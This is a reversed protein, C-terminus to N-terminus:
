WLFTIRFNIWKIDKQPKQCKMRNTTEKNFNQKLAGDTDGIKNLLLKWTNKLTMLPILINLPKRIKMMKMQFGETHLFITLFCGFSALTMWTGTWYMQQEFGTWSSEASFMGICGRCDLVSLVNFSDTLNAFFSPSVTFQSHFM